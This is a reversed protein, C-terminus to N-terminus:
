VKMYITLFLVNKISLLLRTEMIKGTGKVAKLKKKCHEKIDESIRFSAAKKRYAGRIVRVRTKSGLFHSFLHPNHAPIYPM